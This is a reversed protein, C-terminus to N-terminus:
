RTCRMTTSSVLRAHRSETKSSCTYHSRASLSGSLPRTARARSTLVHVGPVRNMIGSPHSARTRRIEAGDLVEITASADARRQMERTMSVVVPAVIAGAEALDFDVQNVAGSTVTVRREQKRHGIRQAIVVQEGPPVGAIRYRGSEDTMAGRGSGDIIVTADAIPVGARSSVRGQIIGTEQAALGIPCVSAAIVAVVTIASMYDGGRLRINM